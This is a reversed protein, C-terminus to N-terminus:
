GSQKLLADRAKTEEAMTARKNDAVTTRQVLEKALSDRAEVLHKHTGEM